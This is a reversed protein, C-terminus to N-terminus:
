CHPDETPADKASFRTKIRKLIRKLASVPAFRRRSGFEEAYRRAADKVRVGQGCSRKLDDWFRVIYVYIDSATRGPFRSLLDDDAIADVIPRYVKEYWSSIARGLGIEGTVGQNMYYKHVLIHNYIVDYQGLSTFDLDNDDTIIGFYTEEYFLAKEYGIVAKLIDDRNMDPGLRIESNLSIVEADIMVVGQHRAVSVRHNGDRVFYVGGIEYLRIPPLNVDQLHAKDINAWRSLMYDHKPLFAQNFDHYRGESGVILDIPVARMGVYTEGKHKVITKIEQLSFLEENGPNFFHLVRSLFEKKRARFFDETAAQDINGGSRAM